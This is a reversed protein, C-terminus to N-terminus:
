LKYAAKEDDSLANWAEALKSTIQKPSDDQNKEKFESRHKKCYNIYGNVTKKREKKEPKAEEQDDVTEPAVYSDKEKTYREKDESAMKEFDKVKDPNDKKLAAWRVALESIIEKNSLEPKDTKVTERESACFFMYASKNKSPAGADKVVKKKAATKSEDKKKNAM